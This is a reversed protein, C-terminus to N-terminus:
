RSSFLHSAGSYPNWIQSNYEVLRRIYTNFLKVYTWINKTKMTKLIQYSKVAAKHYITDIHTDWDLSESIFIGLDKFCLKEEVIHNEISLASQDVVAKKKIKLTACKHPALVLQHQKLWTSIHNMSDQLDVSSTSYLKSQIQRGRAHAAVLAALWRLADVRRM